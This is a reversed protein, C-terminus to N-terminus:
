FHVLMGIVLTTLLLKRYRASVGLERTRLSRIMNFMMENLGSIKLWKISGLTKSTLTVRDQSAQVWTAHAKGMPISVCVIGFM